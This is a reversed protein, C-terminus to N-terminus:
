RGVIERMGEWEKWIDTMCEWHYQDHDVHM